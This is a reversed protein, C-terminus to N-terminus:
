KKVFTIEQSWSPYVASRSSFGRISIENYEELTSIEVGKFDRIENHSGRTAAEKFGLMDFADNYVQYERLPNRSDIEITIIVSENNPRLNLIWVFLIYIFISNVEPEPGLLAFQFSDIYMQTGGQTLKSVVNINGIAGGKEDLLRAGYFENDKKSFRVGYSLLAAEYLEDKRREPIDPYKFYVTDVDGTERVIEVNQTESIILNDPNKKMFFRTVNELMREKDGTKFVAEKAREKALKDFFRRRKTEEKEAHSRGKAKPISEALIQMSRSANSLATSTELARVGTEIIVDRSAGRAAEKAAAAMANAIREDVGIKEALERIAGYVVTLRNSEDPTSEMAHLLITPKVKCM